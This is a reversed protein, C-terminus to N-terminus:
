WGLFAILRQGLVLTGILAATTSAVLVAGAAIDLVGHLRQKAAYDLGHFLTELASNFLEATLVAGICGVLICWEVL